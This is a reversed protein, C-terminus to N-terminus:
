RNYKKVFSKVYNSTKTTFDSKTFRFSWNNDSLSSPANIRAEDGLGLIDQYPVIVRQAKCKFLLRLATRLINQNSKFNIGVNLLKCEKKLEKLFELKEEETVSELYGIFTQNDHTGTYAVTNESYNSPKHPNDKDDNFAFMIVRMGPYGTQSLLKKVGDDIVGLDEAVIKLHTKDKFFDFKPGDIWYGSKAGCGNPIAFFRDFGRFHDIRVIDCLEFAKKIRNNWWTYGNEKMKIWDYIPNGWLQGDSSFADPPVGAVISCEQKQNLLFLEKGNKWKEVSDESVYIPMDGMIEIGKSNAYSKLKQWQELFVFQTFQWFEVKEKNNKFYANILKKDYTSYEQWEKHSKYYNDEKLSMFVAYDFYEGNKLFELWKKNTKDFNLFAKKLVPLKNEFLIGYDVERENKYWTINQYDSKKLLGDNYLMDFDIYNHNLANADCAQYPSNGYGTPLLPLIQWIKIGSKHLFDIFDYATKGITGIGYDNPLSAIPM